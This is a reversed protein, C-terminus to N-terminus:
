RCATYSPGVIAVRLGHSAAVSPLPTSAHGDVIGLAPLPSNAVMGKADFSMM